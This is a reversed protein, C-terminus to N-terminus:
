APPEPQPPTPPVVPMQTMFGTSSVVPAPLCDTGAPHYYGTTAITPMTLRQYEACEDDTLEITKGSDFTLTHTIKM